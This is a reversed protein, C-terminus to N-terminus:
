VENFKKLAERKVRRVESKVDGHQDALPYSAYAANEPPRPIRCLRIGSSRDFRNPRKVTAYAGRRPVNGRWPLSYERSGKM